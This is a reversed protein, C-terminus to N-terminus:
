YTTLPCLPGTGGYSARKQTLDRNTIHGVSCCYVGWGNAQKHPAAGIELLTQPPLEDPLLTAVSIPAIGLWM